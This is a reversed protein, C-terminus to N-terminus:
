PNDRDPAFIRYDGRESAPLGGPLATLYEEGEEELDGTVARGEFLDKV